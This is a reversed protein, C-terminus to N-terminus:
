LCEEHDIGELPRIEKTKGKSRKLSESPLQLKDRCDCIAECCNLVEFSHGLDGSSIRRFERVALDIHGDLYSLLTEGKYPVSELFRGMLDPSKLVCTSAAEAGMTDVLIDSIQHQVWHPNTYHRGNRFGPMSNEWVRQSVAEAFGEKMSNPLKCKESSMGDILGRTFSYYIDALDTELPVNSLDVGNVIARMEDNVIERGALNNVGKLYNERVGRKTLSM